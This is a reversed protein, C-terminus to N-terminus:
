SDGETHVFEFVKKNGFQDTVYVAFAKGVPASEFIVKIEWGGKEGVEAVGGGFESEIYILTGPKGTGHFVDYPPTEGCSGYVQQASFKWEAPEEKPEEEKPEEQPPHYVVTVSDSGVNGAADIAKITVKHEGKELWLVIRWAGEDSVDAEYDGAFVRAGPEVEGEFAVERREFVQGDEPHLIVIEPPTEDAPEEKPLEEKPLEEKPLEEKPLEDKAPEVEPIPEIENAEIPQEKDLTTTTKAEATPESEILGGLALATGALAIVAMGILLAFWRRM